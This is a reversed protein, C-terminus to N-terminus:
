ARDRTSAEDATVAPARRVSGGETVALAGGFAGPMEAQEAVEFLRELEKRFAKERKKAVKRRRTRRTVDMGTKGADAPALLEDIADVLEDAPTEDLSEAHQDLMTFVQELETALSRSFRRVAKTVTTRDFDNRQYGEAELFSVLARFFTSADHIPQPEVESACETVWRGGNKARAHMELVDDDRVRLVVQKGWTEYM